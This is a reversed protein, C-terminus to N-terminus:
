LGPKAPVGETKAGPTLFENATQSMRMQQEQEELMQEEGFAFGL